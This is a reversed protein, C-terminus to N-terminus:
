GTKRTPKDDDVPTLTDLNGRQLNTNIVDITDNILPGVRGDVNSELGADPYVPNGEYDQKHEKGTMNHFGVELAIVSEGSLGGQFKTNLFVAEPTNTTEQRDISAKAAVATRHNGYEDKFVENNVIVYSTLGRDVDQNYSIQNVFNIRVDYEIGVKYLKGKKWRANKFLGGAQTLPNGNQPLQKLYMTTNGSKFIESVQEARLKLIYAPTNAEIKIQIEKKIIIISTRNVHNIQTMVLRELGELDISRIVDNEAFAYSSNWPYSATLPDVSLFKAIQPNYIRFGYDYTNGGGGMGTGDDDLEKGNFGYRYGGSAPTLKRGPMPM